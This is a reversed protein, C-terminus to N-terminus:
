PRGFVQTWYVRGRERGPNIAYAAGMETFDRNMINACHGPSTLWGGVTTSM